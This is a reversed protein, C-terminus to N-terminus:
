DLAAKNRRGCIPKPLGDFIPRTIAAASLAQLDTKLSWKSTPWASTSTNTEQDKLSSTSSSKRVAALGDAILSDGLVVPISNLWGSESDVLTTRSASKPRMALGKGTSVSFGSSGGSNEGNLLREPTGARTDVEPKSRRRVYKEDSKEGDGDGPDACPVHETVVGNEPLYGNDSNRETKYVAMETGEAAGKFYPSKLNYYNQLTSMAPSVRKQPAKVRLSQLSGLMNSQGLCPPAKRSSHEGPSTSGNSVLPSPPHRGPLPIQLTKLAFMQFDTALGNIRKIDAVEVGYKIAVGALTDLKSVQHEIYNAGNGGGSGNGNGNSPSM